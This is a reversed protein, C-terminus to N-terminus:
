FYNYGQIKETETLIVLGFSKDCFKNKNVIYDTVIYFSWM